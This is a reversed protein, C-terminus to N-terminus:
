SKAQEGPSQDEGPSQSESEETKGREEAIRKAEGAVAVATRLEIPSFWRVNGVYKSEVRNKKALEDWSM